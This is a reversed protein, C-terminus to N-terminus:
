LVTLDLGGELSILTPERLHSGSQVPLELRYGLNVVPAWINIYQWTGLSPLTGNQKLLSLQNHAHRLNELPPESTRM